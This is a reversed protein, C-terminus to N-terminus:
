GTRCRRRYEQPSSGYLLAPDQLRQALRVRPPASAACAGPNPPPPQAARPLPTDAAADGRSEVAVVALLRARLAAPGDPGLRAATRAAARALQGADEPDDARTWAAPVDYSGIMRAALEPDGTAEAAAVLERRHERAGVLGAAGSVAGVEGADQPPSTHNM